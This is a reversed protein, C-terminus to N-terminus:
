VVYNMLCEQTLSALHRGHGDHVAAVAMGRGQGSAPSRSAVHLWQDPRFPRHLWLAHNLSSVYIRREGLAPLHAVLPSFNLWWDSMYAFAAAHIRPDDPLAHAARMWFRFAGQGAQPRFQHEPDPIRFEISPKQDESYGGLKQLSQRLKADLEDLRPLDEPREAAPAISPVSHSPGELPLACTVQADFVFRGPGQAGRVNRSSFRKGDQLPTVQLEIAQGPRAGQLFQFQMMTAARAVPMDMLAAQMAQGLLQGGYSRGNLNADGRRTRWGNPGTAELELLQEINLENWAQHTM